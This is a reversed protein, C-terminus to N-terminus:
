DEDILYDYSKQVDSESITVDDIRKKGADIWITDMGDIELTGYKLATRFENKTIPAKELWNVMKEYDGQMESMETIDSSVIAKEYGKFKQVIWTFAGDILLLDPQINDTLVRKREELQKDYKGGDDNNLLADSWNLVNCIQKQDFKLYELPQLESTDLSLKTFEMPISGGAINSMRGKSNAMNVIQQRASTAQEPTLPTNKGTLIGFMGSNKLMKINNDLADNSSELNKLLAHFPSLGYLHSGSMDFFPNATKLHYVNEAPFKLTLAGETLQYYDIPNEDYLVNANKKLVIQIKHSPLIYVLKPVGMNLGNEPSVYFFYVNGTVKLFLKALARLEDWSQNPNPEELPFDLEKENFSKTELLSKRALQQISYNGNTANEINKLKTYSKEDKIVKVYYPVAKTKDCMQNIVSFIIPNTKYGKELFLDNKHEYNAGNNGFVQSFFAQNFPNKLESGGNWFRKFFNDNAM